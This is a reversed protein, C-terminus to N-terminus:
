NNPDPFVGLVRDDQEDRMRNLEAVLDFDQRAGHEAVYEENRERAERILRMRREWTAQEDGQRRDLEQQVVGRIVESLSKREQRAIRTLERHQEPELLVQTRHLAV